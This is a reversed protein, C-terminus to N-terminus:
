PAPKSATKSFTYQECPKVVETGEKLSPIPTTRESLNNMILM